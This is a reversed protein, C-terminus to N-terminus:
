QYGMADNLKKQRKRCGCDKGTAKAVAKVAADIGTAKTVKAITDGLGRSKGFLLWGVYKKWAPRLEPCLQSTVLGVCHASPKDLRPTGCALCAACTEAAPRCELSVGLEERAHTEAISCRDNILFECTM